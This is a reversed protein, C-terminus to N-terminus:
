ITKVNQHASRVLLKEYIAINMLMLFLGYFIDEVPITFLRIGLNEHQNYMVVPEDIWSGTLIGNTIFFPLLLLLYFPYFYSLKVEPIIKKYSLLFIALSIFTVSTYRREFNLIGVLLLGVVLVVTITATTKATLSFSSFKALCFYTFVSAYPICIFFLYEELPVGAFRIGIIYKENFSWVGLNTFLIDWALFILGTVIVAPFFCPWTKYFKIRPHFTFLFPIIFTGVNVFLYVFKSAM